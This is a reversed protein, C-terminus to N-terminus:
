RSRAVTRYRRWALVFWVACAAVASASVAISGVLGLGDALGAFMGDLARHTLNDTKMPAHVREVAKAILLAGAIASALLACLAPVFIVTHDPRAPVDLSGRPNQKYARAVEPSWGQTAHPAHQAIAALLADIDEAIVNLAVRKGNTKNLFLVYGRQGLRAKVEQVYFWALEQPRREILDLVDNRRPDALQIARRFFFVALGLSSLALLLLAVIMGTTAEPDFFSVIAIFGASAVFFIGLGISANRTFRVADVVADLPRTRAARRRAARKPARWVLVGLWIVFPVGALMAILWPSPRREALRSAVIPPNHNAPVVIDLTAGPQARTYVTDREGGYQVTVRWKSKGYPKMEVVEAAVHKGDRYPTWEEYRALPPIVLVLALLWMAIALVRIQLASM